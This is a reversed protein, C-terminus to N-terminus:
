PNQKKEVQDMKKADILLSLEINFTIKNKTKRFVM